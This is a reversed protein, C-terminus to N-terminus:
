RRERGGCKLRAPVAAPVPAPPPLQAWPHGGGGWGQALLNGGEATGTLSPTPPNVRGCPVALLPSFPALSPLALQQARKLFATGGREWPPIWERVSPSLHPAARVSALLSVGDARRAPRTILCRLARQQNKSSVSHRPPVPPARGGMAFRM